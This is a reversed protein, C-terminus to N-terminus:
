RLKKNASTVVVFAAVAAAIKLGFVWKNFVPTLQFEFESYNLILEANVESTSYGDAAVSCTMGYNFIDNDDSYEIMGSKPVTDVRAIYKQGDENYFFTIVSGPIPKGTKADAVKIAVSM